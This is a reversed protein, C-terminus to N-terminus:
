LTGSGIRGGSSDEVGTGFRALLRQAEEAALESQSLFTQLRVWLEDASLPEREHIFGQELLYKELEDVSAPGFRAVAKGRLMRVLAAPDGDLEILLEMVSDMFRNSVVGSSELVDRDIRRSRGQRYLVLYGQALEMRAQVAAVMEATWDKPAGNYALLAALQGWYRIGRQMLDYLIEVDEILYWLPLAALETNVLDFAGVRLLQGYEAHSRGAPEPVDSNWLQVPLAPVSPVFQKVENVQGDLEWLAFSLDQHVSLYNQWRIVEEKQATFYFVQRGERCIEAISEIVADARQEDTTALLEDVLLPLRLGQEQEEIFALRVALLLQIRTGTSLEDLWYGWNAVNDFARFGTTDSAAPPLLEYRGHTIRSFISKARRYVAPQHEDSLTQKLGLLLLQGTVSALNNEYLEKLGDLAALNRTLAVELNSGGRLLQVKGGMESIENTVVALRTVKGALEGRLQNVREAALTDLEGHLEAFLVHEELETWRSTLVGGAQDAEQKARKYEPLWDVLVRAAAKDGETVGLRIYLSRLQEEIREKQGMNSDRTSEAQAIAVGADRWNKDLSRLRNFVARVSPSDVAPELGYSETLGNIRKLKDQVSSFLHRLEAELGERERNAGAWDDVEKLFWYLSDFSKLEAMTPADPLIALKEELRAREMEIAMLRPKLNALDQQYLNQKIRIEDQWGLEKLRLVLQDMEQVVGGRDWNGPVPLGIRLYETRWIERAGPKKRVTLIAVVVLLIIGTLGWPGVLAVAAATGIGLVAMVWPTWTPLGSDGDAKLWNSLAELGSNVQGVSYRETQNTFEHDLAKILAELAQRESLILHHLRLYDDVSGLDDVTIGKWGRPDKGPGLQILAAQEAAKAAEVEKAKGKCDRELEELEQVLGELEDLVTPGLGGEPLGLVEITEHQQGISRVAEAIAQNVETTQGELDTITSYEEGNLGAMAEPFATASTTAIEAKRKADLWAAVKDYWGLRERATEGARKENELGVLKGEEAKIRFQENTIRQFERSSEQWALYPDANRRAASSSYGLQQGAAGLDYGGVALRRIEAALDDDNKEILEHLALMYRDAAEVPPLGALAADVGNQQLVAKGGDVRLVWRDSGITWTADLELGKLANRWIAINIMRATTSKGSGNSGFVLNIQQSLGRYAPLGRPMGSTKRISLDDFVLAQKDMQQQTLNYGCNHSCAIVNGCYTNAAM